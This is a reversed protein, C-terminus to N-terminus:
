QKGYKKREFSYKKGKKKIVFLNNYETEPLDGPVQISGCLKNVIDDITNSHGVILVNKDLSKLKAIFASDPVPSYNNLTLNFYARTPEATSKTRTYNTSYIYAIKKSEMIAKLDEARQKGDASLPPDSNMNTSGPASTEKEAHRVVYYYQPSCSSVLFVILLVFLVPKM